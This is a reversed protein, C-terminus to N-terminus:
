KSYSKHATELNRSFKHVKTGTYCTPAKHSAVSLPTSIRKCISPIIYNKFINPVSIAHTALPQLSYTTHYNFSEYTASYYHVTETTM